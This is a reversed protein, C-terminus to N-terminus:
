SLLGLNRAPSLLQLNDTVRGVEICLRHNTTLFCSALMCLSASVLSLWLIRAPTSDRTRATGSTGGCTQGEWLHATRGEKM